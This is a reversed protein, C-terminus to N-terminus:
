VEAFYSEKGRDVTNCVNEMRRGWGKSRKGQRGGDLCSDIELNLFIGKETYVIINVLGGNTLM